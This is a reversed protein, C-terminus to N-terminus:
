PNVKRVICFRFGDRMTFYSRVKVKEYEEKPLYHLDDSAKCHPFKEENLIRDWLETHDGSPSFIELADYRGLKKLMEESFSFNLKPRNIAVFSGQESFRDIMWQINSVSAYFPFPDSEAQSGVSFSTTEESQNGM